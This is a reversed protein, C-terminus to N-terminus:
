LTDPKVMSTDIITTDAVGPSAPNSATDIVSTDTMLDADANNSRDSSCGAFVIGAILLMKLVKQKM